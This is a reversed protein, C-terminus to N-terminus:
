ANYKLRLYKPSLISPEFAICSSVVDKGRNEYCRHKLVGSSWVCHVAVDPFLVKRSISKIFIIAKRFPSSFM